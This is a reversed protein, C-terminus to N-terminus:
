DFCLNYLQILLGLFVVPNLVFNIFSVKSCCHPNGLHNSPLVTDILLSM